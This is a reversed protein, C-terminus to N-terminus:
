DLKSLSSLVDNKDILVIEVADGFADFSDDDARAASDAGLVV